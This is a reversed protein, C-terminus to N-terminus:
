WTGNVNVIGRGIERAAFSKPRIPCCALLAAVLGNRVM